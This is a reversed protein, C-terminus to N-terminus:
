LCQKERACIDTLFRGHEWNQKMSVHLPTTQHAEEAPKGNDGQPEYASRYEKLARDNLRRRHAM